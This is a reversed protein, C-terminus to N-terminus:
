PINPVLFSAIKISSQSLLKLREEVVYFRQFTMNDSCSEVSVNRWVDRIIESTFVVVSKGQLVREVRIIFFRADGLFQRTILKIEM